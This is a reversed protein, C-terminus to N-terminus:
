ITFQLCFSLVLAAGDPSADRLRPWVTLTALGSGDSNVDFLVKYLRRTSGTYMQIWDGALLIGTVSPTWGRTALSNSFQTQAGNVVPAGTAVGLPVKNATDGLYFTGSPGNLALLAGVVQEANRRKMPPLTIAAEWRKGPFEYVQETLTQPSTSVGVVDVPTIVVEASKFVAPLTLPYSISM